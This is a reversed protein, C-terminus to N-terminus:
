HLQFLSAQGNPGPNTVAVTSGNLYDPPAKDSIALAASIGGASEVRETFGIVNIGGTTSNDSVATVVRKCDVRKIIGPVSLGAGDNSASTGSRVANAGRYTATAWRLSGTGGISITGAISAAIDAATIQKWLVNSTAGAANWGTSGVIGSFSGNSALRHALIVIDGEHAGTHFTFPRASGSAASVFAASRDSAVDPVKDPYSRNGGWVLRVAGHQGPGAWYSGAGYLKPGLSTTKDPSRGLLGTGEGRLGGYGTPAGNNDGGRGGGSDTEPNQGNITDYYNGGRGGRGTYGPGGGGLGGNGDTGPGGAGGQGGGGGLTTHYLTSSADACLLYTVGRKVSSEKNLATRTQGTGTQITLWEGPTVDFSRWHLNGAAAGSFPSVNTGEWGAGIAVGHIRTVGAPVRFLFIQPSTSSGATEYEVQGPQSMSLGASSMMLRRALSM